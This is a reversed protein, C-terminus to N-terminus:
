QGTTLRAGRASQGMPMVTQVKLLTSPKGSGRSVDRMSPRYASSGSACIFPGEYKNRQLETLLVIMHTIAGRSNLRPPLLSCGCLLISELVVSCDSIVTAVSHRLSAEPATVDTAGGDWGVAGSSSAM